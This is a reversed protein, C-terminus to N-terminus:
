FLWIDKCGPASSYSCAAGMSLRHWPVKLSQDHIRLRIVLLARFDMQLRFDSVKM